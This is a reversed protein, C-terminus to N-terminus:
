EYQFLKSAIHCVSCLGATCSRVTYTHVKHPMLFTLFAPMASYKTSKFNNGNEDSSEGAGEDANVDSTEGTGEDANVDLQIINHTVLRM